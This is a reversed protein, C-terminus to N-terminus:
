PWVLKQKISYILILSIFACENVAITFTDLVPVILIRNYELLQNIM